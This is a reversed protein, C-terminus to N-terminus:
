NHWEINKVWNLEIKEFMRMSFYSKRPITEKGTISLLCFGEIIEQWTTRRKIIKIKSLDTIFDTLNSQFELNTDERWYNSSTCKCCDQDTPRCHYQILAMGGGGGRWPSWLHALNHLKSFHPALHKMTLASTESELPRPELGPRPNCQTRPCSGKVNVRVTDREVWTYLTIGTLKISPTVRCYVLM